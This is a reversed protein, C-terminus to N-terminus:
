AIREFRDNHLSHKQSVPRWGCGDPPEVPKACLVGDICAYHYGFFVKYRAFADLRMHALAVDFSVRQGISPRQAARADALNQLRAPAALQDRLAKRRQLEAPV